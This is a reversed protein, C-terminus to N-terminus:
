ALVRQLERCQPPEHLGVLEAYCRSLSTRSPGPHALCEPPNSLASGPLIAPTWGSGRGWWLSADAARPDPRFKSRFRRM